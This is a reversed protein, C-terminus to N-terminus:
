SFGGEVINEAIGIVTDVRGRRLADIARGGNLEPHHQLLFRYITWPGGGLIEFLRPLGPLLRGNELVQWAPYRIGRKALELGLLEHRQRKRRVGEASMGLRLGMQASSLMDPDALLAQKHADGRRMAAQFARSLEAPPDSAEGSVLAAAVTPNDGYAAPEAPAQSLIVRATRIDTFGERELVKSARTWEESPLGHLSVLASVEACSDSGYATPSGAKRRAAQAM